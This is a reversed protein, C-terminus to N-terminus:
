GGAKCHNELVMPWKGMEVKRNRGVRIVWRDIKSILFYFAESMGRLATAWVLLYNHPNDQESKLRLLEWLLRSIAKLSHEAQPNDQESKVRSQTEVVGAVTKLHGKL